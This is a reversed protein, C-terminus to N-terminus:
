NLSVKRQNQQRKFDSLEENKIERERLRMNESIKGEQENLEKIDVEEEREKKQTVDRKIVRVYSKISMCERLCMVHICVYVYRLMFTFKYYDFSFFNDAIKPEFESDFHIYIFLAPRM